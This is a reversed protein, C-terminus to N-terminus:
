SELPRRKLLRLEQQKRLLELRQPETVEPQNLQQMLVAMQRDIFRNRLGLAIDRLQQDPKPVPREAATVETVLAQIESSGCEALFGALNEWTHNRYVELRKVVIHKAHPHEIWGPDLHTAAWEILDEHV